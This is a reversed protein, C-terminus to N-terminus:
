KKQVDKINSKTNHYDQALFQKGFNKLLAAMFM